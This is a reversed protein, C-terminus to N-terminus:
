GGNNKLAFIMVEKQKIISLLQVNITEGKPPKNKEGYQFV